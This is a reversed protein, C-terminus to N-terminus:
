RTTKLGQEAITQHTEVRNYFDAEIASRLAKLSIKPFAKSLAGAMVAAPFPRGTAELAIGTADVSYARIKKKALIPNTFKEESNVILISREKMSKLEEKAMAADFAIVFDPESIPGREDIQEKGRALRLWVKRGNGLTTVTPMYLQVTMGVALAAKAALRATTAVGQETHGLFLFNM